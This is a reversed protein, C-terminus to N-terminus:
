ERDRNGNTIEEIEKIEKDAHKKLQDTEKRLHYQQIRDQLIVQEPHSLPKVHQMHEREIGVDM